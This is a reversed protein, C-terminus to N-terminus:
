IKQRPRADNGGKSQPGERLLTAVVAELRAQTLRQAPGLYIKRLQRGQRRYATWYSGGRQRQEKRVTMFGIIYGCQRDFLPYSFSTTTAADLWAFWAPRDLRLGAEPLGPGYVWQESVVAPKQPKKAQTEASINGLM